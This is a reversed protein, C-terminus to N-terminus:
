LNVELLGSSNDKTGEAKEKKGHPGGLKNLLKEADEKECTHKSLKASLKEITKLIAEILSGRKAIANELEKKFNDEIQKVTKPM